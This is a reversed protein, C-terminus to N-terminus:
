TRWPRQTPSAASWTSARGGFAELVLEVGPTFGVFRCPGAGIPVKKFGGDGVKEVSAKPVIWAAGTAATGYFAHLGAV